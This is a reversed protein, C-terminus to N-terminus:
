VGTFESTSRRNANNMPPFSEEMICADFFVVHSLIGLQKFFFFATKYMIHSIFQAQGLSDIMVTVINNHITGELDCCVPMNFQSNQQKTFNQLPFNIYLLMKLQGLPHPM